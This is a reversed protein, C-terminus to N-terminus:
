CVDREPKSEDKLVYEGLEGDAISELLRISALMKTMNDKGRIDIEGLTHSVALLHNRLREEM